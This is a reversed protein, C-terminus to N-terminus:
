AESDNMERLWPHYKFRWEGEFPPGMVRYNEAWKSPKTITRRRLGMSVTENLTKVLAHSFDIM